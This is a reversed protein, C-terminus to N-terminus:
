SYHFIVLCSHFLMNDSAAPHDVLQHETEDADNTFDIKKM